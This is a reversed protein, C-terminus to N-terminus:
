LVHSVQLTQSFDYSEKNFAVFGKNGRCFAIQNNGNDWWDNYDTGHAVNRFGVM